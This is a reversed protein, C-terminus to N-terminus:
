IWGFHWVKDIQEHLGKLNQQIPRMKISRLYIIHVCDIDYRLFLGFHWVQDLKEHLGMLKLQVPRMKISRLHFLMLVVLPM